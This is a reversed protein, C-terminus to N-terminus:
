WHRVCLLYESVAMFLNWTEKRKMDELLAVRELASHGDFYKWFRQWAGAIKEGDEGERLRKEIAALYRSDEGSAKKADLIVYPTLSALHVADNTSPHETKAPLIKRAHATAKEAAERQIKTAMRELLAKEAMQQSATAPSSSTGSYNASASSDGQPPPESPSSLSHHRRDRSPTKSGESEADKRRQLEEAEMEYEVEYIIEPWVVVYAFTCLQTVWGGRILWALM